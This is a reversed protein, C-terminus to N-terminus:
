LNTGEMFSFSSPKCPVSASITRLRKKLTLASSSAHFEQPAKEYTKGVECAPPAGVLAETLLHGFMHGQLSLLVEAGAHWGDLRAPLGCQLKTGGLGYALLVVGLLSKRESLIKQEIDAVRNPHQVPRASKRQDGDGGHGEADSGGGGDVANDVCCQQM